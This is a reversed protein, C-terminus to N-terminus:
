YLDGTTTTKYTHHIIDKLKAIEQITYLHPIGLGMYKIPAFVLKRPFYRCIGLAPLGYMLIPAMIDECQQKSLNTASISYTLANWITSTIALWVKYMSIRGTRMGDAWKVATTKM